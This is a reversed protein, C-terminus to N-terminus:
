YDITRQLVQQCLTLNNRDSQFLQKQERKYRAHDYYMSFWGANNDVSSYLGRCMRAPPSPMVQHPQATLKRVCFGGGNCTVAAKGTRAAANTAFTSTDTTIIDDCEGLLWFTMVADMDWRRNPSFPWFVVSRNPFQTQITRITDMNECAVFWVVEDPPVVSQLASLTEATQTSIRLDPHPLRDFNHDYKKIQERIHVALTYKGFSLRKFEDVKEQLDPALRFVARFLLQFWNPPLKRLLDENPNYWLYSGFYDFGGVGKIKLWPKHDDDSINMCLLHSGEREPVANKDVVPYHLNFEETEMGNFDRSMVLARNTILAYLICSVAVQVKNGLGGDLKCLLFREPLLHNVINQHNLTWNALASELWVERHDRQLQFGSRRELAELDKQYDSSNPPTPCFLIATRSSYLFANVLLAVAAWIGIIVYSKRIM